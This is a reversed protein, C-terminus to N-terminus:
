CMCENRCISSVNTVRRTQQLDRDRSPKEAVSSVNAATSPCCVLMFTGAHALQCTMIHLHNLALCRHQQLLCVAEEGTALAQGPGELLQPQISAVMCRRSSKLTQWCIQATQLQGVAGADIVAANSAETAERSQLM